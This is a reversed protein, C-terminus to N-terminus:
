ACPNAGVTDGYDPLGSIRIWGGGQYSMPEEPNTIDLVDYLGADAAELIGPELEGKILHVDGFESITIYRKDKM